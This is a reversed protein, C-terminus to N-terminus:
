LLIAESQIAKGEGCTDASAHIRSWEYVRSCSEREM